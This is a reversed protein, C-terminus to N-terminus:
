AGTARRPAPAAAQELLATLDGDVAVSWTGRKEGPLFRVQRVVKRLAARAADREASAVGELGTALRAQLEDVLQRYRALLRPHLTVVDATRDLQELEGAVHGERTELEAIMRAVTRGALEGAAVQSVLREAKRRVEGLERELLGRRQRAGQGKEAQVEHFRRVVAEVVDPHLLEARLQDLVQRELDDAIATRANSCAAAGKDTRNRCRYRRGPGATTLPGGCAGCRLLGSFLRKPANAASANGKADVEARVEALRAQVAAWTEAAIIRLAPAPKRVYDAAPNARTRVKGTKRAKRHTARNWVIEGAYIPNRFLGQLRRADGMFANSHWMGGGPSAIGEANFRAAIARGTSGAVFEACARRIVAAEAEDIELLGRIPEGDPRYVRKRQYGYPPAAAHRGDEVVGTLGRKVRRRINVLDLQNLTGKIGVVLEDVVPEALTVIKIGLDELEDFLDWTDGGSRTLRDLAEAIVLDFRGAQADALLRAYDGRGVTTSGTLAEDAYTEVVDAGLREALGRCERLQDAISRSNAKERSLRAYLAARLATM